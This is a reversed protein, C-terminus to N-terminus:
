PTARFLLVQNRRARRDWRDVALWTHRGGQAVVPAAGLEHGAGLPITRSPGLTGDARPTATQLGRAGDRVTTIALLPLRGPAAATLAVGAVHAPAAVARIVPASWAGGDRVALAARDHAVTRPVGQTWAVLTRPGDLVVSPTASRPIRIGPTSLVAPNGWAPQGATRVAAVVQGASGGRAWAAVTRGEGTALALGLGAETSGPLTVAPAFAEAGAAREAVHVGDAETWGVAASGDEGMAVVPFGPKGDGVLQPTGFRGGAPRSAAFVQYGSGRYRWFAVTADGHPDAAMAMIQTSRPGPALVQRGALTPGTAVVPRRSGDVIELWGAALDAGPAAFVGAGEFGNRSTAVTTAAGPGLRGPTASRRLLLQHGARAVRRDLLLAPRDQRDAGLGLLSTDQAPSSVAIPASWGAHAATPAALAAAALVLPLLSRRMTQM